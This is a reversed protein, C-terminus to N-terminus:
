ATENATLLLRSLDLKQVKCPLGLCVVRRPVGDGCVDVTGM